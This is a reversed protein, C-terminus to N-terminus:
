KSKKNKTKKKSDNNNKELRAYDIFINTRLYLSGKLGEPTPLGLNPMRLRSGNNTGKPLTLNYQKGDIHDVTITNGDIADQFHIDITREIDINSVQTYNEFDIVIILVLDGTRGQHTAGYKPYKKIIHGNQVDNISLNKIDIETEVSQARFIDFYNKRYYKFKSSFGKYLDSLKVQLQIQMDLPIQMDGYYNWGNFSTHQQKHGYQLEYDHAEKKAKDSLHEYAESIGKFKEEAESDGPNKDPHHKKALERYAKKIDADSADTSVELIDYYNKM